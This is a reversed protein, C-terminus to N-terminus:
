KSSRKTNRIFGRVMLYFAEKRTLGKAECASDLKDVLAPEINRFLIQRKTKDVQKIYTKSM